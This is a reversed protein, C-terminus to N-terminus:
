VFDSGGSLRFWALRQFTLDAGACFAREGARDRDGRAGADDADLSRVRRDDRGMMVNTFANMKAPRDLTPPLGIGEDVEYRIQTYGTTL